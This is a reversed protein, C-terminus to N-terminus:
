CVSASIRLDPNQFAFHPIPRCSGKAVAFSFVSSLFAVM